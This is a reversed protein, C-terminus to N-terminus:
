RLNLTRRMVRNFLDALAQAGETSPHLGDQSIYAPNDMLNGWGSYIDVRTAGEATCAQAIASNWALTDDNLTFINRPYFYPVYRLDPMNGVFVHTRPAQSRLTALMARLESSYTALPTNHLYDNVALWIVVANPQDGLAAPLEQQQAQALTEGPIGLNLLRTPQPLEQALVTPWNQRDPDDTGVGFADSAGIVALTFAYRTPGTPANSEGLHLPGLSVSCATLALMGALLAVPTLARLAWRFGGILKRLKGRSLQGRRGPTAVMGLRGLRWPRGLWWIWRGLWPRGLTGLSEVPELTALPANALWTAVDM